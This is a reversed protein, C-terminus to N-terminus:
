AGVVGGDRPGGNEPEGASRGVGRRRVDTGRQVEVEGFISNGPTAARSQGVDDGWVAKGFARLARRRSHEEM